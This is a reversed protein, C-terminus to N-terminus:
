IPCCGRYAHNRIRFLIRSGSGEILALRPILDRIRLCSGNLWNRSDFEEVAVLAPALWASNVVKSKCWITQYNFRIM